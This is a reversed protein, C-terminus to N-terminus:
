TKHRFEFLLTKLLKDHIMQDLIKQSPKAINLFHVAFGKPLDPKEKGSNLWIVRGETMLKFEKFQITLMYVDYVAPTFTEAKIYAGNGSISLVHLDKKEIHGEKTLISVTLPWRVRSYQRRNEEKLSNHSRLVQLIGEDGDEIRVTEVHSARCLAKHGAIWQESAEIVILVVPGNISHLKELLFVEEDDPLAKARIVFCDLGPRSIFTDLANEITSVVTVNAEQKMTTELTNAKRADPELYLATLKEFSIATKASGTNHQETSDTM